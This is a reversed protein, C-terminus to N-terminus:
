HTAHLSAKVIRTGRRAVHAAHTGSEARSRSVRTMRLMVHDIGSSFALDLLDHNSQWGVREGEGADLGGGAWVGTTRGTCARGGRPGGTNCGSGGPVVMTRKREGRYSSPVAGTGERWRSPARGGPERYGGM